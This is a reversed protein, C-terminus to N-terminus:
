QSQQLISYRKPYEAAAVHATARTVPAASYRPTGEFTSWSAIAVAKNGWPLGVYM